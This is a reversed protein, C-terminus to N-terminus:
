PCYEMALIGCTFGKFMLHNDKHKRGRTETKKKELMPCIIMWKEDSIDHKSMDFM